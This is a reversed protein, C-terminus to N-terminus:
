IPLLPPRDGHGVKPTVDLETHAIEDLVRARRRDDDEGQRDADPAVRRDEADHM